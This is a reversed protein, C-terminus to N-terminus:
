YLKCVHLSLCFDSCSCKVYSSYMGKCISLVAKKQLDSRFKQHKFTEKLIKLIRSSNLKGSATSGIAKSSKKLPIPNKKMQKNVGNLNIM